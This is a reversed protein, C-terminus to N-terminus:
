TDNEWMEIGSRYKRKRVKGEGRGIFGRRDISILIIRGGKWASKYKIGGWMIKGRQNEQVIGWTGVVFWENM